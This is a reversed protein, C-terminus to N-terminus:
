KSPFIALFFLKTVVNPFNASGNASLINTNAAISIGIGTGCILIGKEAEGDAVAHAVAHAYDPYDVSETTYCGYDKWEYGKADLMKIIEKKLEVGAHDCGLAIM